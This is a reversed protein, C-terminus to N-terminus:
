PRHQSGSSAPNGLFRPWFSQALGRSSSAVAFLTGDYSSFFVTGNKAINPASRILASSKFMWRKTGTFGDVAYFGFDDCGFYVVDDAGVAPSSRIAGGTKLKWKLQGTTAEVAIFDGGTNGAFVLGNAGLAPSTEISTPTAYEWKKTGSNGDIAYLKGDGSGAFVVENVGVAISSRISGGTQFKWRIAGSSRDFAYVTSDMSGAYVLGNTGQSPSSIIIGASFGSGAIPSRWISAGDSAKVAFASRDEGGFFLSDNGNVSPGYAEPFGAASWRLAGTVGDISLLTGDENIQFIDGNGASVPASLPEANLHYTWLTSGTVGDLSLVQNQPWGVSIVLAGNPDIASAMVNGLGGGLKKTWLVSGPTGSNNTAPIFEARFFDASKAQAIQTKASSTEDITLNTLPNWVASASLTPTWDVRIVSGSPGNVRLEGSSPGISLVLDPRPPALSVITLESYGAGASIVDISTVRGYAIKALVEAGNGPGSVTVEPARTYGQGGEAVEVGVVFGNVVQAVARARRFASAEFQYLSLVEGDTLARGYVRLDDIQGRFTQHSGNPYRTAGVLLGQQSASRSATGSWSRTAVLMGNAFLRGGTSDFVATLHHWKKETLPVSLFGAPVSGQTGYYWARVSDGNLFLGWGNASANLYNSVLAIDTGPNAGPNVWASVTVPLLNFNTAPTVLLRSSDGDFWGAASAFGFRNTSFLLATPNASLQNAVASNADGDFRYYAIQETTSPEISQGLAVPASLVAFMTAVTLTRKMTPRNPNGFPRLVNQCCNVACVRYSLAPFRSACKFRGM